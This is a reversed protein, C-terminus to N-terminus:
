QPLQHAVACAYLAAFLLLMMAIWVILGPLIPKDDNPYCV